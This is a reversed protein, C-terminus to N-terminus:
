FEGLLKAYVMRGRPDYLLPEYGWRATTVIPPAQDALNIVGVRLTLANGVWDKITYGYQADMTFFADINGSFDGTRGSDNDDHLPSIYHAIFSAAHGEYVWVV